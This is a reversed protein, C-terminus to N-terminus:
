NDCESLPQSDPFDKVLVTLVFEYRYLEEVFWPVIIKKNTYEKVKPDHQM